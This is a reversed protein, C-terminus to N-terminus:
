LRNSIDEYEYHIDKLDAERMPQIARKYGGGIVVKFVHLACYGSLHVASSRKNHTKQVGSVRQMAMKYSHPDTINEKIYLYIGAWAGGAKEKYEIPIKASNSVFDKYYRAQVDVQPFVDMIQNYLTPDITKVKHLKKAAEAHIASAVRLSDKNFIQHDYVKCYEVDYDYFFRFVDKESWDYIPKFHSVNKMKPSKTLYAITSSTIGQFRLLSEDARLGIILAIRKRTDKFFIKDFDEQSWVGKVREAVSPKPVIWKRNDDWQIYKEKLGLVYIESNLPTALYVFNYRPNDVQSLVFDRIVGQIVEEDRFLVNIKDDWGKSDLYVEMLKLCALSDKGGSYSVWVEDHSSYVRDIRDLAADLVNRDEYILESKKAM